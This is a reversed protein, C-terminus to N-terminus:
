RNENGVIDRRSEKFRIWNGCRVELYRKYNPNKLTIEFVFPGSHQTVLLLTIKVGIRGDSFKWMEQNVGRVFFIHQELPIRNIPRQYHKAIMLFATGVLLLIAFLLTVKKM